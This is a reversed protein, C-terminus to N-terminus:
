TNSLQHFRDMTLRTYLAGDLGYSGLAWFDNIEILHFGPKDKELGIDLSYCIPSDKYNEIIEYLRDIDKHSPFLKYNGSYHKIGVIKDKIIYKDPKSHVFIRYESDITVVDSWYIETEGTIQPNTLKLLQIDQERQLVTGTFLKVEHVPKVFVPFSKIDYLKIVDINRGYYESLSSPYGIYEPIKIGVTKFFEVCCQVSGIVIDNKSSSSPFNYGNYYSGIKQINYGRRALPYESIYVFDDLPLSNNYELYATVM